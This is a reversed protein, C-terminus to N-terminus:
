VARVASKKNHHFVLAAAGLIGADDGGLSSPIIKVGEFLGKLARKSAEKIAEEIFIDWAGTLGGTLIVAEPSMINIINAIGVGLYRGADKLVGRALNDGDCAARYIDAPGIKYINGMCYERLSSPKGQELAKTAADTVARGSAYNELCGYNSCLCKEGGAMISMHGLESATGLLKGEHVIGGGIGTGLTMLVFSKFERGAGMWKEGLAACNADNEVVISLSLGLDTFRYGDISPLNPSQIVMQNERDIIGAVGIGVGAVEDSQLREVAEKITALADGSSPEKIKELLKGEESILAVRLNTGGFDVGIAYKKYM